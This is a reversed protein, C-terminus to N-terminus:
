GLRKVPCLGQGEAVTNGDPASKKQKKPDGGGGWLFVEGVSGALPKLLVCDEGKKFKQSGGGGGVERGSIFRKLLV